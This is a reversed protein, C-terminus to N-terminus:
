PLFERDAEVMDAVVLFWRVQLELDAAGRVPTAPRTNTLLRVANCGGGFAGRQRDEKRPIYDANTKHKCM